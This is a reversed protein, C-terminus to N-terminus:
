GAAEARPLSVTFTAGQGPTSEVGIRGGHAEVLKRAISLGLGTGGDNRSRAKNARYFREFLYPLEEAPIGPGDDQVAVHAGADDAWVRVAVRGGVPAYRLANSLLNTLVQALRQSDGRVPPMPEDVQASLKVGKEQAQSHFGGVVTQTVRALDVQDLELPLRGAEALALDRLDEVLRGLLVTQDHIPQLNDQTLDFVGDQLAEVQGRIVTLPTRLEHAIDAMMNRRLQEDYDLAAAMENFRQALDGVEDRSDVPVRYTLEGAGIRRAADRVVRLPQVVTRTLLLGLLLAVLGAGLGAWLLSRDIADKFEQELPGNAAVLYGVTQGNVTIAESRRLISASLREGVYRRSTDAVVTGQEDALVLNTQQGGFGNMGRGRGMGPMMVDETLLQEVSDWGDHATYYAALDPALSMMRPRTAFSVYDALHQGVSRNVLLAVGGVAILVTLALALLLKIVLPANKLV